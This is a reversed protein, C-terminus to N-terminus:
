ESNGSLLHQLVALRLQVQDDIHRIDYGTIDAIQRFRYQLTNRHIYLADATAGVNMNQSFYVQLTELLNTTQVSYLPELNSEHLISRAEETLGSVIRGLRVEEYHWIGQEPAIRKGIELASLAQQYGDPYGPYNECEPSIGILSQINSRLWINQCFEKLATELYRKRKSAQKSGGSITLLVIEGTEAEFITDQPNSFIKQVEQLINKRIKAAELPQRNRIDSNRVQIVAIHRPLGLSFNYIAARKKLWSEKSNASHLLQVIFANKDSAILELESQAQERELLLRLIFQATKIDKKREQPPGILGILGICEGEYIIKEGYGLMVNEPVNVYGNEVYKEVPERGCLIEYASPHFQNLHSADSSGVIYGEADTITVRYPLEKEMLDVFPGVLKPTLKM